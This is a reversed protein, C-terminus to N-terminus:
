IIHLNSFLLVAPFNVCVRTLSNLLWMRLLLNRTRGCPQLQAFSSLDLRCQSFSWAFSAQLPHKERLEAQSRDVGDGGHFSHLKTSLKWSPLEASGAQTRTPGQGHVKCASNALSLATPIHVVDPFYFHATETSYKSFFDNVLKHCGQNFSYRIQVPTICLGYANCAFSDICVYLLM